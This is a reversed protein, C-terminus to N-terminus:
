AFWFIRCHFRGFEPVGGLFVAFNANAFGCSLHALCSFNYKLSQVPATGTISQTGKMSEVNSDIM